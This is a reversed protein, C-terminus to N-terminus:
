IREAGAATQAAAAVTNLLKNVETDTLTRDYSAIALRLTIQKHDTDDPRQYIDIPSLNAFTKEPRAKDFAAWVLDFLEQYPLDVPVKLTIDQTVKPFRPLSVYTKATDGNQLLVNLDLEFGASFEPLKLAQRVSQKYEGIEGVVVNDLLITAARKGEYPTIKTKTTGIYLAEDLPELKIRGALGCAALLDMLYKRTEYYAAGAYNQATKGDTTFVLALREFELPVGPEADTFEDQIHAKGIEFLAFQGYGAKINPHVKELLSPTLSLRYYQLDPSLANSLQFAQAKDQGVKDFLNGHVFSYTLVENAGARSLQGRIKAKLELLPDKTAPTLDRKPLELPLKDYGYLRGVEEVVDERLEIDTRWFPATVTLEQGNTGVKFEVNQLLRQMAEAPLKLGLRSNIFDTSVNVPSYLTQREMVTADLHNNDILPGAVKGNAFRQIEDVIKALVALNQLPSQGKNFRTVADTFLGHTMSTRRVSYLDFNACELIINTTHEDVETESGGMVGGVGILQKDTAIMVAEPRPEITKGNLLTIKEGSKPNRVVIVASDGGSLAKVKDYDYAHLPQGTELMFFNTYDVINNISKQGVKALEVQLWVPSPGVKVGSMVIATFRPALQPIENEVRLALTEATAAPFESSSTYWDPSKFSLGQIGALERAIGLFGFCDPRHTFMKNELDLVIDDQLGFAKAFNTGPAHDGDIELIGDHNDNLALEKASALMGNSVVGRFERAELVFPEKGITEPVTSGPPLWAVTLGSRVNPAGCVVQAHGNEDREVDKAAGGDDIKCVHLRDANPHQECSVVKAIIIGQYKSGLDIVEEVAGLQAGIKEVLQEVGIKAVDDACGYRKNMGRISNLSIKM